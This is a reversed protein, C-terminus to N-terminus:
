LYFIHYLMNKLFKQQTLLLVRIMTAMAYFQFPSSGIEDLWLEYASFKRYINPASLIVGNIVRIISAVRTYPAGNVMLGKSHLPLRM